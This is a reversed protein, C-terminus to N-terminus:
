KLLGRRKIESQVAEKSFQRQPTEFGIQAQKGWNKMFDPIAVRESELIQKTIGKNYEHVDKFSNLLEWFSDPNDKPNPLRSELNQLEAFSAQTKTIQLRYQDWLKQTDSVFKRFGPDGSLRLIELSRNEPNLPGLKSRYKEFGSSVNKVLRDLSALTQISEREDSTMRRPRAIFTQTRQLAGLPGLVKEFEQQTTTSPLNFGLQQAFEQQAPTVLSSLRELEAKELARKSSIDKRQEELSEMQKQKLMLELIDLAGGKQKGRESIGSGITKFLEGLFSVEQAM